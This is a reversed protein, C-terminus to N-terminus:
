RERGLAEALAGRALHLDARTLERTLVLVVIYATLALSGGALQLLSLSETGFAFLVAAMVAAALASRALTIALPALRLELVRVCIWLHGAVYFAVAVDTAISAGKIGLENILWLDLAVNIVVTLIALPIRRRAEGVYNVSVALLVGLGGLVVYPALFRLADISADYDPGLLLDVLPEAWVVLPPALGVQLVILWRLGAQLAGVNPPHDPHRALRPAIGAALALGGYQTFILLKLPAAFLGAATTGLIAGIMLTDIEVYIAFAGEVILLAGAYSAIRRYGWAEQM